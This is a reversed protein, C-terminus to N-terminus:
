KTRLEQPLLRDLFKKDEELKMEQYCSIQNHSRIDVRSERIHDINLLEVKNTIKIDIKSGSVVRDWTIRLTKCVNDIKVELIALDALEECQSSNIVLESKAWSSSSLNARYKGDFYIWIGSFNAVDLKSDFSFYTDCMEQKTFVMNDCREAVPEAESRIPHLEVKQFNGIWFSKLDRAIKAENDSTDSVNITIYAEDDPCSKSDSISLVQYIKNLTLKHFNEVESETKPYSLTLYTNRTVWDGVKINLM